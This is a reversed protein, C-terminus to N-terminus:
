AVEDVRLGLLWLRTQVRERERDLETGPELVDLLHDVELAACAAALLRDYRHRRAEFKAFSTGRPPHHVVPALRRAEVAIQEVPRAPTLPSTRRRRGTPLRSCLRVGAAVALVVVPVALWAPDV